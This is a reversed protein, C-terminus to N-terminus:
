AQDVHRERPQERAELKEQGGVFGLDDHAREPREQHEPGEDIQQCALRLDAAAARRRQEGNREGHRADDADHLEQGPADVVVVRHDKARDDADQPEGAAEIVRARAPAGAHQEPEAGGDAVFRQRERCRAECGAQRAPSRGAVAAPSQARRGCRLRSPGDRAATPKAAVRATASAIVVAGSLM